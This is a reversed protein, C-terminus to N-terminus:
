ANQVAWELAPIGLRGRVMYGKLMGVSSCTSRWCKLLYTHVGEANSLYVRM